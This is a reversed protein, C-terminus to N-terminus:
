LLGGHVQYGACGVQHPSLLSGDLSDFSDLAYFHMSSLKAITPEAVFLNKNSKM